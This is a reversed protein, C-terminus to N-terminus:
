IVIDVSGSNTVKHCIQSLKHTIVPDNASLKNSTTVFSLLFQTVKISKKLIQVLRVELTKLKLSVKVEVKSKFKM